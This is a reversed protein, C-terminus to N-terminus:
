LSVMRDQQAREFPPGIKRRDVPILPADVALNPADDFSFHSVRRVGVPPQEIMEEPSGIRAFANMERLHRRRCPGFGGPEIRDHCDAGLSIPFSLRSGSM